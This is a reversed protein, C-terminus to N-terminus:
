LEAEIEIGAEAKAKEEEIRQEEAIRIKEAELLVPLAKMQGEILKAFQTASFMDVPVSFNFDTEACPDNWRYDNENLRLNVSVHIVKLNSHEMRAM